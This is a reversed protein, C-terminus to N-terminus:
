ARVFLRVFFLVTAALLVGVGVGAALAAAVAPWGAFLMRALVALAILGVGFSFGRALLADFPDNRSRGQLGRGEDDADNDDDGPCEPAIARRAFLPDGRPNALPAEELM